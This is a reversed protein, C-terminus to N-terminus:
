HGAKSSLWTATGVRHGAFKAPARSATLCAKGALPRDQLRAAACAHTKSARNRFSGCADCRGAGLAFPMRLGPSAAGREPARPAWPERSRLRRKELILVTKHCSSKPRSKSLPKALLGERGEGGREKKKGNLTNKGWQLILAKENFTPLITVQFSSIILLIGTGLTNVSFFFVSM